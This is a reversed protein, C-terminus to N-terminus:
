TVDDWADLLCELERTAIREATKLGASDNEELSEAIGIAMNMAEETNEIFPAAIANPNVGIQECFRLWGDRKGKRVRMFKQFAQIAQDSSEGSREEDNAVAIVLATSALLDARLNQLATALALVMFRSKRQTYEYDQADYRKRPCTAELQDLEHEDKRGMAEVFLRFREDATLLSYQRTIDKM